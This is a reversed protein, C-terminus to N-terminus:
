RRPRQSEKIASNPVEDINHEACEYLEGSELSAADIAYCAMTARQINFVDKYAFRFTTMLYQDSERMDKLLERPLEVVYTDTAGPRVAAFNSMSVTIAEGVGHTPFFTAPKVNFVASPEVNVAPTRGQNAYTVQIRYPDCLMQASQAFLWARHELQMETRSDNIQERVADLQDDAVKWQLGSVVLGAIALLPGIAAGLLAFFMKRNLNSIQASQVDVAQGDTGNGPSSSRDLPPESHCDQADHGTSV